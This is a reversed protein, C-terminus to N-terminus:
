SAKARGTTKKRKKTKSGVPRGRGKKVHAKHRKSAPWRGLEIGLVDSLWFLNVRPFELGFVEQYEEHNLPHIRGARVQNRLASTGFKPQYVATEHKGEYIWRLQYIKSAVSASVARPWVYDGAVKIRPVIEALKSLFAADPLSGGGEVDRHQQVIKLVGADTLHRPLTTTTM